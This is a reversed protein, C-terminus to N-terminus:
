ETVPGGFPQESVMCEGVSAVPRAPPPADIVPGGFPEEPARPVTIQDEKIEQPM